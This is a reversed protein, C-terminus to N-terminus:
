RLRQKEVREIQVVVHDQIIVRIEGFRIGKIASRIQDLVSDPSPVAASSDDGKDNQSYSTKISM